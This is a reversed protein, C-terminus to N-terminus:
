NLLEAACGLDQEAVKRIADAEFQQGRRLYNGIVNRSAACIDGHVLPCDPNLGLAGGERTVSCGQPDIQGYLEVLPTALDVRKPDMAMAEVLALGAKRPEGGARYLSALEELLGPSSELARGRELAALAHPRDALRQYVRGLQLYLDSPLSTLGPKGRRANEAQYRINWALEIRESRLLASLSKRYWSIADPAVPRDGLKLYLTGADRYATASNLSDPLPDLIALARGAYSVSRDVDDQTALTSSMAASMNAKYSGPVADAAGRWFGQPDLWDGNRAYTRAAFGLLLVAGIGAAFRRYATKGATGRRWLTDLTWVVAIAFGVAPLYLFREGMITGILISLNSTPALTVFFFAVAFTLPMRRRWSRIAVLAAAACALLAAVAKTDEWVGAGWGFLPIANYSYDWSLRAPWVLLAFYKGIVKCATLRASWFGAGVLPNDGFPTALLAAHALVQSRVYLYVLCPVAAAAYGAMRSRWPKARGFTCDYIALVGLLVIASEKSFIGVAAALGLAALWAAKGVGTAEIAKRHCLLGALVSFAALMDARGVINTVSETLVPHVGWLASLLLAAPIRQFIALGLAYVLVINVAHLVFNFCHYGYSDTGHGLIAYDFLFSLTTLPRYLGNNAIPWYQQTLIRHLGVPTVAHVRSDQLIISDNDVLFQAHFSNAYALFTFLLVGALLLAPKMAPRTQGPTLRISAADKRNGAKKAAKM